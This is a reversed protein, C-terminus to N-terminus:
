SEAGKPLKVPRKMREGTEVAYAVAAERRCPTWALEVLGETQEGFLRRLHDLMMDPDPALAGSHTAEAGELLPADNFDLM